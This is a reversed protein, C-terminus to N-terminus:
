VRRFIKWWSDGLPRLGRCCWTFKTSSIKTIQLPKMACRYPFNLTECIKGVKCIIWFSWSRTMVKCTCAAETYCSLDLTFKAFIFLQHHITHHTNTHIKFTTNPMGISNLRLNLKPGQKYLIETDELYITHYPTQGVGFM